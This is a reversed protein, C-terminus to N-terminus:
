PCPTARRAAGGAVIREISGLTYDRRESRVAVELRDGPAVNSVMITKGDRHGLGYPGLTMGTIEIEAM